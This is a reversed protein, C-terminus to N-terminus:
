KRERGGHLQGQASVFLSFSSSLRPPFNERNPFDLSITLVSDFLASCSAPSLSGGLFNHACSINAALSATQAPSLPCDLFHPGRDEKGDRYFPEGKEKNM